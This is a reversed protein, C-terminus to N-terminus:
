EDLGNALYIIELEENESIHSQDYIAYLIGNENNWTICYWGNKSVDILDLSIYNYGENENIARKLFLDLSPLFRMNIQGKDNGYILVEGFNSEKLIKPSYIMNENESVKCILNGILSYTYFTFNHSSYIIFCPLPSSSIFIFDASRASKDVKISSIKKNSPFTYINVYGDYGTSGWINLIDNHYLSTIPINFHDNIQYKKKWTNILNKYIIISGFMTGSFIYKEDNTILLVIVPSTDSKNFIEFTQIIASETNNINKSKIKLNLQSVIIRGDYYGGEAIFTGKSYIIIPYSKEIIENKKVRLFNLKEIKEKKIYFKMNSDFRENDIENQFNIIDNKIFQYNNFIGFFKENDIFQLKLIKLAMKNNENKKNEIKKIKPEKERWNESITKKNNDKSKRKNIKKNTIQHPTLGFETLRLYYIKQEPSEKNIDFNDYSSPIFLNFANEAEKGKQKIGFILDFWKHINKNVEESELYTKLKTIFIYNNNNAWLPLTVDNSKNKNDKTKIKLDLNNKNKFLEPLYYFEPCLERLDGEHSTSGEFSKHVSLLMRNPDDFKDGQLEISINSYPFVRTLYHCVYLPNSYHSGYIYLKTIFSTEKQNSESLEKKALTYKEIYNNKRKQGAETLTMMGMPLSFDRISKDLIIQSKKDELIFQDYNSNKKIIDQNTNENIKTDDGSRKKGIRLLDSLRTKNKIDGSSSKIIPKNTKNNNKTIDPLFSKSLSSNEKVPINTLIDQYQTLIWPFVPYQSIDNFSRNSLINLWLLLEMTSINWDTWNDLINIIFDPEKNNINFSIYTNDARSVNYGIIRNKFIKIEKKTTFKSLLLNLANQRKFSDPFNLYYVKNKSTFIEIASEKYYYTRLFIFQISTYKIKFYVYKSKNLKLYSGYCMKKEEDFDDDKEKKKKKNENIANEDYINQFFHCFNNDLYLFGKIHSMQIVYCCKHSNLLYGSLPASQLKDTCLNPYIKNNYENHISSFINKFINLTIIDSEEEKANEYLNIDNNNTEKESFIENMNLNMITTIDKGQENEIFLNDKKFRSFNPLYANIDYIPALLPRLPVKGYHNILKYKMIHKKQYKNKQNNIMEDLSGESSLNKEVIEDSNEEYDIDEHYFIDKYSWLGTFSFIKKKIKKYSLKAKEKELYKKEKYLKIEEELASLNNEMISELKKRMKFYQIDYQYNWNKKAEKENGLDESKMENIKFIREQGKELYKNAFFIHKIEKQLGKLDVCSLLLNILYSKDNFFKFNNKKLTTVFDKNFVNAINEKSFIRFVACKSFDIKKQTTTISMIKSFIQSGKRKNRQDYTRKLIKIMLTFVEILCPILLDRDLNNNYREIIFGIFYNLIIEVKTQIENLMPNNYSLNSSALILFIIYMKYDYIIEEKEEKKMALNITIIYLNSIIYILPLEGNKIGEKNISPKDNINSNSNNNLNNNNGRIKCNCLFSIQELFTDSKKHSIINEELYKDDKYHCNDINFIQKLVKMINKFLEYDTWFKSIQLNSINKNDIKNTNIGSLIIGNFIQNDNAMFNNIEESKNENNFFLMYEYCINIIPLLLESNASSYYKSYENLIEIFFDSYFNNLFIITNQNLSYYKKIRTGCLLLIDFLKIIDDKKLKINIILSILIKLGKKIMNQIAEKMKQDTKEPFIIINNSFILDRKDNNVLYFQFMCDIFWFYFELNFTNVNINYKKTYIQENIISSLIDIFDCIHIYEIKYNNLFNSILKIVYHSFDMKLWELLAELIIKKYSNIKKDNLGGLIPELKQYEILSKEYISEIDQKQFMDQMKKDNFRGFNIVSEVVSKLKKPSRYIKNKKDDKENQGNYKSCEEFNLKKNLRNTNFQGDGLDMTLLKELNFKNHVYFNDGSKKRNKTRAKGSSMFKIINNEEMDLGSLNNDDGFGDSIKDDKNNKEDKDKQFVIESKVLKKSKEKIDGKAPTNPKIRIYIPLICNSIYNINKEKNFFNNISIINNSDLLKIESSMLSLLNIIESVIDPYAYTSLLFLLTNLLNSKVLYKVFKSKELKNDEKKNKNNNKTLNAKFINKIIYKILCPKSKIILFQLIKIYIDENYNSFKGIIQTISNFLSQLDILKKNSEIYFNQHYECCFFNKYNENYYQLIFLLNDVNLYLIDESNIKTINNSIFVFILNQNQLSFKNIIKINFLFNNLFSKVCIKGFKESHNFLYQSLNIIENAIQTNFIDKQNINHSVINLNQFFISIIEFLNLKSISELNNKKDILITNIISIIILLCNQFINFKDAIDNKSIKILIEIFPIINEIGGLLYIKKDFRNNIIINVINLKDSYASIFKIDFNNILKNSNNYANALNQLENTGYTYSPILLIILNKLINQNMKEVFKNVHTFKYLGYKFKNQYFNISDKELLKNFLIFNTMFGIFNDCLSINNIENIKAHESEIEKINSLFSNNLNISLHFKKKNKNTNLNISINYWKNEKIKSLIISNNRKNDSLVLVLNMEVDIKLLLKNSNNFMINFLSSFILNSNKTKATINEIYNFSPNLLCKFCIFITIGDNIKSKENSSITPIIKISEKGKFYYFNYPKINYINKMIINNNTNNKNNNTVVNLGYGVSLFKLNILLDNINIENNEETPYFYIKTLEKYIFSLDYKDIGFVSIIIAFLEKLYYKIDNNEEEFFKEILWQQFNDQPLFYSFNSKEFSEDLQFDIEKLKINTCFYCINLLSKEHSFINIISKLSNIKEEISSSQSYINIFDQYTINDKIILLNNLEKKPEHFLQEVSNQM